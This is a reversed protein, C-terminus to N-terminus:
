GSGTPGAGCRGRRSASAASAPVAESNLPLRREPEARDPVHVPERRPALGNPLALEIRPGGGTHNITLIPNPSVTRQMFGPFRTELRSPAAPLPPLSKQVHFIQARKPQSRHAVVPPRGWTRSSAKPRFREGEDRPQDRSPPARTAIRPVSRRLPMWLIVASGTAPPSPSAM